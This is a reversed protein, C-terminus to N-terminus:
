GGGFKQILTLRVLWERQVGREHAEWDVLRYTGSTLAGTPSADSNAIMSDGQRQRTNREKQKERNAAVYDPHEDRYRRWYDSNRQRWREQSLVQNQFYGYDTSRKTQQWLRKRAQQCSEKPCYAQRPSQPRPEFSQGCANCWRKEM